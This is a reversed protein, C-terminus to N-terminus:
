VKSLTWMTDFMPTATRNRYNYTTDHRKDKDIMATRETELSTSYAMYTVTKGHPENQM